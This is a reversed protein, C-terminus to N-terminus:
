EAIVNVKDSLSNGDVEESNFTIINSTCVEAAM